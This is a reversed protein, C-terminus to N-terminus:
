DQDHWEVVGKSAQLVCLAALQVAHKTQLATRATPPMIDFHEEASFSKLPGNLAGTVTSSLVCGLNAECFMDLAM